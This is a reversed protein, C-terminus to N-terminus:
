RAQLKGGSSEDGVQDWTGRSKRKMNEVLAIAVDYAINVQKSSLISKTLHDSSSASTM